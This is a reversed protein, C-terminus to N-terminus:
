VNANTKAPTPNTTKQKQKTDHHQPVTHDTAAAFANQARTHPQQSPAPSQQAAAAVPNQHDAAPIRQGAALSRQGVAFSQQDALEVAFSQRDVLEAAFKRQGSEVAVVNRPCGSQPATHVVGVAITHQQDHSPYTM